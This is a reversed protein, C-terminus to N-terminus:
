KANSTRWDTNDNPGKVIRAGDFLIATEGPVSNDSLRLHEADDLECTLMFFDYAPLYVSTVGPNDVLLKRLRVTTPSRKPKGFLGLYIGRITSGVADSEGIKVSMSGSVLVWLRTGKAVHGYERPLIGIPTEGQGCPKVGDPTGSLILGDNINDAEFDAAMSRFVFTRPIHDWAHLEDPLEITIKV